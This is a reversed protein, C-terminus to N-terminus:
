TAIIRDLWICLDSFTETYKIMNWTTRKVMYYPSNEDAYWARKGVHIYNCGLRIKLLKDVKETAAKGYENLIILESTEFLDMNAVLLTSKIDHEYKSFDSLVVPTELKIYDEDQFNWGNFGKKNNIIFPYNNNSIQV